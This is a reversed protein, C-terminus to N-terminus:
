VHGMVIENPEWQTDPEFPFMPRRRHHYELQTMDATTVGPTNVRILHACPPFYAAVPAHVGKAVLVEFDGPEVGFATLQRLSFPPMRKSTVMVTIGTGSDLVATLGQDFQSIGGHRVETEEFRGDYLGRVTFEGEFPEGHRRDTKGGVRLQLRAAMGAQQAQKCAEPDYLCVFSVIRTRALAHLLVTGDAPSGGGVNDGMDLMCIPGPGPGSGWPLVMALPEGNEGYQEQHDAYRIPVLGREVITMARSIAEEVSVLEGRYRERSEWWRQALQTVHERAAASDEEIAVVAAGMEVVDAYPFGLLLGNKWRRVKGLIDAFTYITLCPVRSTRQREINVAMPPLAAAMVPRFEGRLTRAMLQAADIGRERQDIHPNTRYAILANCGRVMQGSLNAHLDLTGIIPMKPGVKARLRSLWEGDGDPHSDCVMAGHPAVLLGDLPGANALAAHMRGVLTEFCNATLPGHPLARAAFIPVAEVGEKALGEFFGGVEHHTGEMRRRVEEGECLLDQEFHALTTRAEIFTNSEHMFAIIGVRM